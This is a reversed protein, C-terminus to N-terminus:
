LWIPKAYILHTLIATDRPYRRTFYPQLIAATNHTLRDEPDTDTGCLREPQKKGTLWLM